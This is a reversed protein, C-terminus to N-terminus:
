TEDTTFQDLSDILGKLAKFTAGVEDDAEFSGRIDIARMQQLVHKLGHQTQAFYDEFYEQKRLSNWIAYGLAANLLLSLTLLINSLM